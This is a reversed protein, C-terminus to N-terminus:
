DRGFTRLAGVLQGYAAVGARGGVWIKSPKNDAMDKVPRTQDKTRLRASDGILLFYKDNM